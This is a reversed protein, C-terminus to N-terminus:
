FACCGTQDCLWAQFPYIIIIIIIIIINKFGMLV